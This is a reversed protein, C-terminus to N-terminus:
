HVCMFRLQFTVSRDKQHTLHLVRHVLDENTQIRKRGYMEDEIHLHALSIALPLCTSLCLSMCLYMYLPICLCLFPLSFCIYDSFSFLPSLSLSNLFSLSLYLFLSVSLSPPHSSSPCLCICRFKYVDLIPSLIVSSVTVPHFLYAYPVYVHLSGPVSVPVYLPILFLLFALM